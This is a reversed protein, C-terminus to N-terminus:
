QDKRPPNGNIVDREVILRRLTCLGAREAADSLLLLMCAILLIIIIIYIHIFIYILLSSLVATLTCQKLQYIGLRFYHFGNTEKTKDPRRLEFCALAPEQSADAPATGQLGRRQGIRKTNLCWLAASSLLLLM